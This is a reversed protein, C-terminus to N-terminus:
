NIKKARTKALRSVIRKALMEFAPEYSEIEAGEESDLQGLSYQLVSLDGVYPDNFELTGPVTPNVFDYISDAQLFFPEIVAVGSKADVLEVKAILQRQAETPYFVELDANTKPNRDWMFTIKSTADETITVLLKYKASHDKYRLCNTFAMERAIQNRLIGRPDKKIVAVSTEISSQGDIDLKSVSYNCSNCLVAVLGLITFKKM